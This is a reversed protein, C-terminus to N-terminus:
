AGEATPQNEDVRKRKLKYVLFCIFGTQFSVVPVDALDQFHDAGLM